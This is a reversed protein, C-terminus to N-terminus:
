GGQVVFRGNGFAEQASTTGSLRVCVAGKSALTAVLTAQFVELGPKSVNPYRGSAIGAIRVSVGSGGFVRALVRARAGSFQLGGYGAFREGSFSGGRLPPFPVRASVDAVGVIQLGSPPKQGSRLTTTPRTEDPRAGSHWEGKDDYWGVRGCALAATVGAAFLFFLALGRWVVGRSPLRWWVRGHWWRFGGNSV